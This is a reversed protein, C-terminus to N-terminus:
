CDIEMMDKNAACEQDHGVQFVTPNSFKDNYWSMSKIDQDQRQTQFVTTNSFKDNYLPTATGDVPQPHM